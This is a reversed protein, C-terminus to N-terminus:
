LDVLRQWVQHSAPIALRFCYKGRETVLLIEMKPLINGRAASRRVGFISGHQATIRSWGCIYIPRDRVTDRCLCEESLECHRRRGLGVAQDTGSVNSGGTGRARAGSGLRRSQSWSWAPQGTQLGRSGPHQQRQERLVKYFSM